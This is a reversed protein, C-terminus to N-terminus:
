KLVNHLLKREKDSDEEQRNWNKLSNELIKLVKNMLWDTRAIKLSGRCM